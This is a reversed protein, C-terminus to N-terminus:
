RASYKERHHKAELYIQELDEFRLYIVRRDHSITISDEVEGWEHRTVVAEVECEKHKPEVDDYDFVFAPYYTGAM